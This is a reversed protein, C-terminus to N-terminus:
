WKRSAGAGGFSGGSFGGFGSGGSPPRYTPGSSLKPNRRDYAKKNDKKAKEEAQSLLSSASALFPFVVLWGLNLSEEAKKFQKRANGLLDKAEQGVDSGSVKEAVSAILEPLEKLLKPGETRAKNANEKDTTIQSNISKLSLAIGVLIALISIWDPNREEINVVKNENGVGTAVRSAEKLKLSVEELRNKTETTVDDHLSNESAVMYAAPLTKLIEMSKKKARTVEKIKTEIDSKLSYINDVKPEIEELRASVLESAKWGRAAIVVIGLGMRNLDEDAVVYDDDFSEVRKNLNSWVTEPSVSKLEKLLEMAERFNSNGSSLRSSFVKLKAKNELDVKKLYKVRRAYRIGLWLLGFIPTAIALFIGFITMINKFNRSAEERALRNKEEAIKREELRAQIPTDGLHAIIGDVGAVVGGAMNNDRFYPVVFQDLINGSAGDTLDPELGYGVEIRVDRDNPAILFVIGNDKARDGVGWANALRNTYDDVEYGELSQVTVVAIEISTKQQYDSLKASLQTEIEAPLIDAFDNVYGVPKPFNQSFVLASFLLALATSRLITKVM